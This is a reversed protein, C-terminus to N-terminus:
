FRQPKLLLAVSILYDFTKKRQLHRPLHKTPIIECLWTSVNYTGVVGVVIRGMHVTLIPNNSARLGEDVDLEEGKLQLTLM